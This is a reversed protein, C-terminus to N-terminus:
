FDPRFAVKIAQRSHLLEVGEGYRAMALRHTILPGARVQGSALMRAAYFSGAESRPGCAELRFGRLWESMGFRIDGHAVGFIILTSATVKMLNNVSAALGVCDISVEVNNERRTLERWEPSEPLMVVDAGLKRALELRNPLVDFAYVERAGRAKLAQIALLGAPGMGSVGVRRNAVEGVKFVAAMLCTFIELLGAEEFAFGPAFRQFSREHGAFYEAYGGLGRPRSPRPIEPSSGWYAVVDGERLRTVGKGVRVVTGALEHGSAGPDLPYKPYGEREFIDVGRWTTIDWHTCSNCTDVKVLV